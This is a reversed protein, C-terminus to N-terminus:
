TVEYRDFGFNAFYAFVSALISSPHADDYTVNITVRPEDDDSLPGFCRLEAACDRILVQLWEGVTADAHLVCAVQEWNQRALPVLAERLARLPITPPGVYRLGKTDGYPRFYRFDCEEFDGIAPLIRTTEREMFVDAHVSWDLVSTLSGSITYVGGEYPLAYFEGPNDPHFAIEHGGDTDLLIICELLRPLSLPDGVDLVVTDAWRERFEPLNRQLEEPMFVHVADNYVGGGLTMVYDKYGVPFHAHLAHEVITVEGETTVDRANGIVYVSEFAM